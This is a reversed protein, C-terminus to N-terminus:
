AAAAPQITSGGGSVVAGVTAITAEVRPLAALKASVADSDPEVNEQESSPPANSVHPLGRTHEPRVGPPWVNATRAVSGAPFVPGEAVWEHVTACGSGSRTTDASVSVLKVTVFSPWAGAPAKTTLTVSTPVNVKAPSAGPWDAVRVQDAHRRPVSVAIASRPAATTSDFSSLLERESTLSQQRCSGDAGRAGGPHRNHHVSGLARRRSPFVRICAAPGSGVTGSTRGVGRFSCSMFSRNMMSTAITRATAADTATENGAVLAAPSGFGPVITVLSGISSAGFRAATAVPLRMVYTEDSGLPLGITTEPATRVGRGCMTWACGSSAPFM